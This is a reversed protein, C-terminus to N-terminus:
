LDGYLRSLYYEYMADHTIVAESRAGAPLGGRADRWPSESHSREVLKQGSWDGYGGLVVDITEAEEQRLRSPDGDVPCDHLMFRGRHSAYIEPIVPGQAWAQIEADFLPEEDWVLHWAQCYYVLKHLKMATMPSKEQMIYAAVDGVQAM